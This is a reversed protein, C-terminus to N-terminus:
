LHSHMPKISFDWRGELTNMSVKITTKKESDQSVKQLIGILDQENVQGPLQGFRAMQILYNEVAKVKDPKVMGLNSLRARANQDLVQSLISNRM